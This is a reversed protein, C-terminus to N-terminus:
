AALAAADPPEVEGAEEVPEPLVSAEVSARAEDGRLGEAMVPELTRSVAWAVLRARVAEDLAAFGAYGAKVWELPLDAEHAALDREVAGFRTAIEEPTGCEHMLAPAFTAATFRLSSRCAGFAVGPLVNQVILWDGHLRATQADRALALGVARTREKALDALLKGSMKPGAATDDGDPEPLGAPSKSPMDGPRVLGCLCRVGGHQWVVIVGARARDSEM